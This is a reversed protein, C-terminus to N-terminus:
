DKGSAQESSSNSSTEDSSSNGEGHPISYLRVKTNKFNEEVTKYVDKPNFEKLIDAINNYRNVKKKEDTETM